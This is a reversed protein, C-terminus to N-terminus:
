SAARVEGGGLLGLGDTRTVTRLTSPRITYGLDSARWFGADVLEGALAGCREALLDALARGILDGTGMRIVTELAQVHLRMAQESLAPRDSAYAEAGPAGPQPDSVTDSM